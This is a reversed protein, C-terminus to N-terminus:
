PSLGFGAMVRGNMAGPTRTFSKTQKPSLAEGANLPREGITPAAPTYVREQDQVSKSEVSLDIQETGTIVFEPLDIKPLPADPKPVQVNQIDAERKVAEKKETEKRDTEQAQLLGTLCMVALLIVPYKMIARTM